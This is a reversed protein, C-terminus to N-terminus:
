KLFLPSIIPKKNHKLHINIKRISLFKALIIILILLYTKSFFDFIQTYSVLEPQLTKNFSNNSNKERLM